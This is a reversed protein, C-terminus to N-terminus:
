RFAHPRAESQIRRMTCRLGRITEPDDSRSIMVRCHDLAGSGYRWQLQEAQRRIEDDHRLAYIFDFVASM